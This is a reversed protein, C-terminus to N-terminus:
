QTDFIAKVFRIKNNFDKLIEIQTFNNKLLMNKIEESFTDHIEFYFRAGKNAVKGAKSAIAEYFIIPENDPVFLAQEPEFDKVHIDINQKEKSPIYPPNSVVIDAKTKLDLKQTLIDNEIFEIDLNLMKANGLATSLAATSIDTALCQWQPHLTKLAIPICGSGTGFDIANLTKILKNEKSIISVLEETEPRPILTNKNVNLKIGYFYTYGLVYQIPEHTLVREVNKEFTEIDFGLYIKDLLLDTKSFGTLDEILMFAIQRAEEFSYLKEIKSVAENYLLKVQM